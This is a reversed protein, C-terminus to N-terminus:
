TSAGPCIVAVNWNTAISLTTGNSVRPSMTISQMMPIDGIVFGLFYPHFVVSVDAVLLSTPGFDGAPLSSYTSAQGNPAAAVPGCARRQQVGLPLVVSWLVAGNYTCNTTCGTPAATFGVNSLTISFAPANSNTWSPFLAFVASTAILAQVDTLSNQAQAQTASTSAIRAVAGAAIELRRATLVANSVDLTGLFLVLLLPSLLAFELGALGSRGRRRGALPTPRAAQPEAAM